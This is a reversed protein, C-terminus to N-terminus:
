FFDNFLLQLGILNQFHIENEVNIDINKHKLLLEMIKISVFFNSAAYHLPTEENVFFIFKFNLSYTFIM